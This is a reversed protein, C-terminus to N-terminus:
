AWDPIIEPSAVEILPTERDRLVTLMNSLQVFLCLFTALFKSLPCFLPDTVLGGAPDQPPQLRVGLSWINMYIIYFNLM